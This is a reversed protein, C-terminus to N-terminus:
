AVGLGPAPKKKVGGGLPVTAVEIRALLDADIADGPQRGGRLEDAPCRGAEVLAALPRLYVSEDEGRANLRARRMLGGRSVDLLREATLRAPKGALHAGMGLRPVLARCALAAELTVDRAMDEAESLAREDYLLGTFFAPVAMALDEPLADCARVELTSKLRAEPFLTALHRFWDARTARQGEFGHELFNRFTQGTNLVLRAGRKIFFMGADLAWEVYDRYRPRQVAWLRPILGSREPDMNLWVDLRESMLASVRGEIFPANAFMAQYIPSLKLMVCLKRMADEESEYDFNAQITSTRQMMDRGRRGRSPLYQRMIAYREKPVWSLQDPTATPHFGVSWWRLGLQKSIGSLEQFHDIFEAEIGHVDTWPAGSLELQGGPELTISSLGRELAIVPSGAAESVPAWGHRAQLLEFISLVSREGSYPIPGLSGTHVGFKEAEAGIRFQDRPKEARQFIEELEAIDRVPTDSASPPTSQM